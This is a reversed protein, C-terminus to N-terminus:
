DRSQHVFFLCLGDITEDFSLNYRMLAIYALDFKEAETIFYKFTEVTDELTM